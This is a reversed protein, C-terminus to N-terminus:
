KFSIIPLDVAAVPNNQKTEGLAKTLSAAVLKVSGYGEDSDPVPSSTQDHRQKELDALKANAAKLQVSLDDVVRKLFMNEAALCLMTEELPMPPVNPGVSDYNLSVPTTSQQELPLDAIMQPQAVVPLNEALFKDAIEKDHASVLRILNEPPGVFTVPQYKSMNQIPTLKEKNELNQNAKFLLLLSVVEQNGIYSAIHLPTNGKEDQHDIFNQNNYCNLLFLIVDVAKYMVAVHLLNRSKEEIVYPSIKYHSLLFCKLIDRSNRIAAFFLASRKFEDKADLPHAGAMILEKAVNVDNADVALHLATRKSFCPKNLEFGERLFNSIATQLEPIKKQWIAKKLETIVNAERAKKLSPEQHFITRKQM